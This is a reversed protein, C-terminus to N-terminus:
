ASRSKMKRVWRRLAVAAGAVAVFFSIAILPTFIVVFGEVEQPSGFAASFAVPLLAIMASVLAAGFLRGHLAIATGVGLHLIITALVIITFLM